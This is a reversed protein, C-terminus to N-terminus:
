PTRLVSYTTGNAQQRVLQRAVLICEAFERFAGHGGQHQCVYDVVAQVAIFADAPAATLGVRQMITLDNTDDGIYAIQDPHLERRALIEDLVAAKDRIGLHLEKIQLKEARRAVAPSAEGTIIGVEIQALRRLREVGMGDRLSFRKLEEGTASYYVGGDTLVGDVDTLLLRVGAAKTLLAPHFRGNDVM